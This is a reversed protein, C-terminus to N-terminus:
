SIFFTSSDLKYRCGSLQCRRVMVFVGRNSDLRWRDQSMARVSFEVQDLLEHMPHGSSHDSELLDKIIELEEAPSVDSATNLYVTAWADKFELLNRGNECRWASDSQSCIVTFRVAHGSVSAHPACRVTVYIRPKSENGVRYSSAEFDDVGMGRAAMCNMAALANKESSSLEVPSGVFPAPLASDAPFIAFFATACYMYVLARVSNPAV